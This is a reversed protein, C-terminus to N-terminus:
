RPWRFAQWPTTTQLEAQQRHPFQHALWNGDVAHSAPLRTHTVDRYVIQNILPYGPRLNGEHDLWEPHIGVQVLAMGGGAEVVTGRVLRGNRTRLEIRAGKRFEAPAIGRLLSLAHNLLSM